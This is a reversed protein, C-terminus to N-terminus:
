EERREGEDGLGDISITFNEAENKGGMKAGCKNCYLHNERLERKLAPLGCGFIRRVYDCSTCRVTMSRYEDGEIIWRGHRVPEAEITPADLLENIAKKIGQVVGFGFLDDEPIVNKLNEIKPIINRLKEEVKDADILRPM